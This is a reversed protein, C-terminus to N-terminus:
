FGSVINEHEEEKKLVISLEDGKLKLKGSVFDDEIRERTKEM